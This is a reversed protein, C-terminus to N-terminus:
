SPGPARVRRICRRRNAWRGGRQARLLADSCLRVAGHSGRDRPV